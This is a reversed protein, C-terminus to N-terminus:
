VNIFENWCNAVCRMIQNIQIIAVFNLKISSLVISNDGDVSLCTLYISPYISIYVSMYVCVCVCYMCCIVRKPMPFCWIFKICVLNQTYTHTHRSNQTSKYLALFFLLLLLLLFPWLLTWTLVHTSIIIKKYQFPYLLLPHSRTVRFVFPQFHCAVTPSRFQFQSNTFQCIVHGSISNLRM